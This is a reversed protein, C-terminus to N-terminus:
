ETVTEALPTLEQPLDIENLTLWRAAEENSIWEACDMRGQIRSYTVTYYRGKRSRFLEQDLWQSGSSRGIHNNGNWDKAENFCATANNTDVVMNDSMRFRAMREEQQLYDLGIESANKRASFVNARNPNRTLVIRLGFL